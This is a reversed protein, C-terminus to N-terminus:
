CDQVLLTPLNLSCEKFIDFEHRKEIAESLRFLAREKGEGYIAPLSIDLIGLLSYAEDEEVSTRRNVAWSIRNNFSFQSLPHGHLARIPIGTINHIELELSKKSGLQQHDQSFFEVSTPAILEQLTWGRTFWKCKGLAIEKPNPSSINAHNFFLDASLDSLYVYCKAADQYWRFMSNIAESLEASSSRDICCSDVWFYRLGDRIAQDGCFRIKRFGNKDKGKGNKLDQYTVEQDDTEWTHSLIAYSPIGDGAFASLCFDGDENVSLLHM